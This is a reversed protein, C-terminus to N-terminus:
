KSCNCKAKSRNEAAVEPYDTKHKAHQAPMNEHMGHAKALGTQYGIKNEDVRNMSRMQGTYSCSKSKKSM